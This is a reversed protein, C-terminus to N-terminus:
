SELTDLVSPPVGLTPDILYAARLAAVLTATFLRVLDDSALERHDLHDLLSADVYGTWGRMTTRLAPSVPEVVGLLCLVRSAAQWRMDEILGAVEPDSGSGGRMLAIFGAAEAEVFRVHRTLADHLRAALTDGANPREHVERLREAVTNITALYLGRKNTFHHSILGYAVGARKAIETTTVKDYDRETFLESAVAILRARRDHGTRRTSARPKRETV